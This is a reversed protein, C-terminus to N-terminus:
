NVYLFLLKINYFFLFYHNKILQISVKVYNVDNIHIFIINKRAEVL